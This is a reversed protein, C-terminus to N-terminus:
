RPFHNLRRRRGICEPARHDSFSVARDVKADGYWDTSLQLRLKPRTHPQPRPHTRRPTTQLRTYSPGPWRADHLLEQLRNLALPSPVTKGSEWRQVTNWSVGIQRAFQEQSWGKSIRYYKIREAIQNMNFIRYCLNCCIDLVYLACINRIIGKYGASPAM